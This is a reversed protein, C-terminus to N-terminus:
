HQNTIRQVFQSLQQVVHSIDPRRFGLNLLHGVLHRYPELDALMAQEDQTLKLGLPLPTSTSKAQSLGAHVVINNAYKLQLVFLGSSSRAIELKLFFKGHELDKITFHSDVYNKLKTNVPRMYQHFRFELLNMTFENNWQRSAQKLGSLSLKLYCVLGPKTPYVNPPHM